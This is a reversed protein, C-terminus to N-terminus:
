CSKAYADCVEESNGIMKIGSQDLWIVRNCYEKILDLNHSAFLVTTGGSILEKMKGIAKEKFNQDGGGAFAEDLLLIDINKKTICHITISFNLRTVMGSSFQFVKTDVFGHLGSFDVIENFKLDIEKKRLGLLSGCLYINERMTLKNKLGIGFGPVFVMNGHTKIIGEDPEYIEAILRLLTSKGCGNKGIIGLNDGSNVNLSINNLVTLSEPNGRKFLQLLKELVTKNRRERKFKKSLNNINIIEMNYKKQM